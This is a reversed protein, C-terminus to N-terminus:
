LVYLTCVKETREALEKSHPHVIHKRVMDNCFGLCPIEETLVREVLIVYDSKQMLHDMYNPLLKDNNLEAVDLRSVDDPLHNGSVRNKVANHNVCHIDKNQNDETM